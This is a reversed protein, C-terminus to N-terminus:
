VAGRRLERPREGGRSLADDVKARVEPYRVHRGELPVVAPVGRGLEEGLRAVDQRLQGGGFPLGRRPDDRGRAAVRGADQDGEHGEQPVADDGALVDDDVAEAADAAGAPLEVLAVEKDLPRLARLGVA